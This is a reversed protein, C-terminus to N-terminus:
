MALWLYAFLTNNASAGVSTGDFQNYWTYELGIRANLWPWGPAKSAGFSGSNLEWYASACTLAGPAM